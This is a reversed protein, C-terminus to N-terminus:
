VAVAGLSKCSLSVHLRSLAGEADAEAKALKAAEDEAQQGGLMYGECGQQGMMQGSLGM